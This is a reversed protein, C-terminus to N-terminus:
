YIRVTALLVAAALIWLAATWLGPIDHADLTASPAVPRRSGNRM